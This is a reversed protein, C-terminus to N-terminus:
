ADRESNKPARPPSGGGPRQGARPAPAAPRSAAGGQRQEGGSAERGSTRRGTGGGGAAAAATPPRSAGGSAGGTAAREGTEGLRRGGQRATDAAYMGLGAAAAVTGVPGATAAGGSAASSGTSGATGATAAGATAAGSGGAPGSGAPGGGRGGGGGGGGTGSAGGAPGPPAAGRATSTAGRMRSGASRATGVSGGIRSTGQALGERMGAHATRAQWAGEASLSVLTLLAWPACAALAFIVIASLLVGVDGRAEGTVAAAAAYGALSLVTVIVPKMAILVFLAKVLRSEWERLPPWISAALAAPLFLVAVYIASSRLLMEIWVLIGAIVQILAFLFAIASSGFGAFNDKGWADGVDNWFKGADEGMTAGAVTNTIEDAVGLALVTLTIVLGTGIGARLMGYVTAGLADPDRRLAASVLAMMAVLAALGIGLAAMSAFRERYWGSDLEPTATKQIGASIQRSVWTAANTMWETAQDLVGGAVTEAIKGPAGTVQDVAGKGVDCAGEAVDDVVPIGPRCNDGFDPEKDGNGDTEAQAQAQNDVTVGGAGADPGVGQEHASSASWVLALGAVLIAVVFRRM